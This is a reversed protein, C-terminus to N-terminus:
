AARELIERRFWERTKESAARWARMLRERDDPRSQASVDAGAKASEILPRRKEPPMEALADLEVGKDLSTGKVENLDSGLKKARAVAHNIERKTVGLKAATESAFGSQGPAARQFTPFNKGRQDIIEKRRALHEAKEAPSLEARMLNEDIEWIEKIAPDVDEVEVEEFGLKKLAELRHMGSVLHPVDDDDYWCQIPTQLGIQSISEALSKVVGRDIRGRLREGVNIDGISIMDTM